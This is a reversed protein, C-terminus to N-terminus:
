IFSHQNNVRMPRQDPEPSPSPSLTHYRQRPREDDEGGPAAADPGVVPVQPIRLDQAEQEEVPLEAEPEPQTPSPQVAAIGDREPVVVDIGNESPVEPEAVAVVPERELVRYIFWYTNLDFTPTVLLHWM